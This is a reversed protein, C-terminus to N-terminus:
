FMRQQGTPQRRVTRYEKCGPFQKSDRKEIDWPSNPDHKVYDRMRRPSDPGCEHGLLRQAGDLIEKTTCWRGTRVLWELAADRVSMLRAKDRAPCYITGHIEPM